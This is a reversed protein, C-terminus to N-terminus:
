LRQALAVADLELVFAIIDAVEVVQGMAEVAAQELRRYEHLQDEADEAADAGVEVIQHEHLAGGVPQEALVIKTPAPRPRCWIFKAGLGGHHAAVDPDAELIREIDAAAFEGLAIGLLHGLDATDDLPETVLDRGRGLRACM